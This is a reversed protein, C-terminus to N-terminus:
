VGGLKKGAAIGGIFKRLEDESMSAIQESTKEKQKEQIVRILDAADDLTYAQERASVM